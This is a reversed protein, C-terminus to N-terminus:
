LKHSCMLTKSREQFKWPNIHVPRTWAWPSSKFVLVMALSKYFHRRPDGLALVHSRPSWSENGTSLIWTKRRIVILGVTKVIGFEKLYLSSYFITKDNIKDTYACRCINNCVPRHTATESGVEGYITAMFYLFNPSVCSIRWSVRSTM